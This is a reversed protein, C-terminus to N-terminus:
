PRLKSSAAHDLFWAVRGPTARLIRAPYQLPDAPPQGLIRGIAEAKDAGSALVAIEPCALLVRPMLTIRWQSFKEVYVAAVKQERDLIEPAGPFLSATHADPGAGLHIADFAAPLDRLYRAAADRPPLEAQIRHVNSTPVGAPELFHQRAMRYNSQEHDPPVCREDVWYIRVRSWDFGSRALLEFMPKPSSGGSIALHAAGGRHVAAELIALLHEGCAEAATQPSEFIYQETM